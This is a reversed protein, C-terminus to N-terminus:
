GKKDPDRELPDGIVFEVPHRLPLPTFWRGVVLYPIPFGLIKYTWQQMAPWDFANRLSLLEGFVLVPVLSAGEQLALRVFGRHRSNIVVEQLLSFEV